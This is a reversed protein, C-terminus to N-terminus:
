FSLVWFLLSIMISANNSFVHRRAV